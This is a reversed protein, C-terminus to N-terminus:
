GEDAERVKERALLDLATQVEVPNFRLRGNVDLSPIDGALTLERLFRQPLQLIAALAELSCYTIPTNMCSLIRITSFALLFITLTITFHYL